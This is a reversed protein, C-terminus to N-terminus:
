WSYLPVLVKSADPLFLSKDQAYWCTERRFWWLALPLPGCLAATARTHLTHAPGGASGEKVLVSKVVAVSSHGVQWCSSIQGSLGMRQASKAALQNCWVRNRLTPLPECRSCHVGGSSTSNGPRDEPGRGAGDELPKYLAQEVQM